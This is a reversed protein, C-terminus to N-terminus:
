DVYIEERNILAKRECTWTITTAAIGTVTIEVNPSNLVFEVDLGTEKQRHTYIIRGELTVVGGNNVYTAVIKFGGKLTYDSKVSTIEVEIQYVKDTPIVITDIIAPTADVTDLVTEAYDIRDTIYEKLIPTM